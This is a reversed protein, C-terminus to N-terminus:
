RAEGGNSGTVTTTTTTTTTSTTCAATTVTTTLTLTTVTLTTQYSPDEGESRVSLRRLQAPDSIFHGALEMFEPSGVKARADVATQAAARLQAAYGADSTARAIVSLITEGTLIAKSAM